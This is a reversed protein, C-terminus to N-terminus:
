SFYISSEPIVNWIFSFDRQVPKSIKSIDGTIQM